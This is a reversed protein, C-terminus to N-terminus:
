IGQIDHIVGSEQHCSPFISCLPLLVSIVQRGVPLRPDLLDSAIILVVVGDRRYSDALVAKRRLAKALNREIIEEQERHNRIHRHQKFFVVSAIM